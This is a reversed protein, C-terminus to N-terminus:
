KKAPKLNLTDTDQDIEYWAVNSMPIMRSSSPTKLVIGEGAVYQLALGDRSKLVTNGGSVENGQPIYSKFGAIKVKM